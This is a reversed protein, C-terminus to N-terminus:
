TAGNHRDSVLAQIAGSLNNVATILGAIGQRNVENRAEEIHLRRQELEIIDKHRKEKKEECNMLTQALVSASKLISSGVSKAKKRRKTESDVRESQDTESSETTEASVTQPPPTPFQLPPQQQQSPQPPPLLLPPAAPSLVQIPIDAGANSSSSPTSKPTTTYRRHVVENLAEFVESVLNTPLNREKREHKELKWYSQLQDNPGGAANTSRAEYERVKKYDRLLNDWKDNCQNQSRLCGNNWCYNEVWKWRLEATRTSSSSSPQQQNNKNNNPNTPDPPTTSAKTRREDDLKKAGILVLTEHLTWNGKRYERILSTSPSPSPSPSPIPTITPSIFSQQQQQQQRLYQQHHLIISSTPTNNPPESM